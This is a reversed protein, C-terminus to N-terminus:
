NHLYPKKDEDIINGLLYNTLIKLFFNKQVTDSVNNDLDWLDIIM